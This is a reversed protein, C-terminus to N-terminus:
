IDEETLSIENFYIEPDIDYEDFNPLANQTEIRKVETPEEIVLNSEYFKLYNDTTAAYLFKSVLSMFKYSISREDDILLGDNNEDKCITEIDESLLEGGYLIPLNNGVFFGFKERLFNRILKVSDTIFEPNIRVGLDSVFTPRYVVYLNETIDISNIGDFLQNMQLKLAEKTIDKAFDTKSEEIFVVVKFGNRLLKKIKLNSQFYSEGFDRRVDPHGVFCTKIGYDKLEIWSTLGTHSGLSNIHANQACVKILKKATLNLTPLLGMYSPCVITEVEEIESFQNVFKKISVYDANNKWNAILKKQRM